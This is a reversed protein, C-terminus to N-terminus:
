FIKKRAKKEAFVSVLQSVNMKMAQCNEISLLALGSLREEHMTCAYIM